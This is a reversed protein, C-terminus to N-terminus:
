SKEGRKPMSVKIENLLSDTRELDLHPGNRGHFM